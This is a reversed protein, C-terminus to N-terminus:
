KKDNKLKLYNVKDWSLDIYKIQSNVDTIQPLITYIRKIREYVTNDLIGLRISTTKIKVYVDNPNRMDIYEVKENSYLEVEKIIKEIEAISESNIEKKLDKSVTLIKLTDANEALNMYQKNTVLIGDSTFFASPKANLDRKIIAVPTRERLIIQIRAPFGYRRVYINKIVPIKYIEKKIPNVSMLFIPIHSIKVDKIAKNIVYTPVIKNNVIEIRNSDSNKFTDVPLYWGSLNCIFYMLYILGFFLVVRLLSKVSNIKKRKKRVLREKQKHRLSHKVQTFEDEPKNNLSHFDSETM